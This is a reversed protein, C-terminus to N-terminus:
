FRLSFTYAIELSLVLFRELLLFVFYSFMFFINCLINRLKTHEVPLFLVLIYMYIQLYKMFLYLVYLTQWHWISM